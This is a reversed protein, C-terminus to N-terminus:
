LCRMHGCVCVCVYVNMDVIHLHVCVYWPEQAQEARQQGRHEGFVELGARRWRRRRSGGWGRMRTLDGARLIGCSIQACTCLPVRGIGWCAAVEVCAALPLDGGDGTEAGKEQAPSLVPKWVGHWRTSCVRAAGCGCVPEEAAVRSAPRSAVYICCPSLVRAHGRGVDGHCCPGAIPAVTGRGGRSRAPHGGAGGTGVLRPKGGAVGHWLELATQAGKRRVPVSRFPRECENSYNLM